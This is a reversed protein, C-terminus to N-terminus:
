EKIINNHIRKYNTGDFQFITTSWTQGTRITSIVQKENKNLTPNGIGEGEGLNLENVKKLQKTASDYIYFNYFINSGGSGMNVYVGLDSNGDFNIDLDTIFLKGSFIKIASPDVVIAQKVVGEILLSAENNNIRYEYKKNTTPNPTSTSVYTIKQQTNTANSKHQENKSTSNIQSVTNKKQFWTFPNWWSAFVSSSIGLTLALILSAIKIKKM